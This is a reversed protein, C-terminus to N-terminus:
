RVKPTPTPPPVAPPFKPNPQPQPQPQTPPRTPPQPPPSPSSSKPDQKRFIDCGGPPLSGFTSMYQGCLYNVAFDEIHSGISAVQVSPLEIISPLEPPTPFPDGPPEPRDELGGSGGDGGGGAGGGGGGCRRHIEENTAGTGTLDRKCEEVAVEEEPGPAREVFRSVM